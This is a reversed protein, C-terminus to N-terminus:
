NGPRGLPGTGLNGRSGGRNYDSYAKKNKESIAAWEAETKCVQSANSLRWGTGQVRKCVLKDKKAKGDSAATSNDMAAAPAAFTLFTAVAVLKMM